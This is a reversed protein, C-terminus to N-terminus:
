RAAAVSRLAAERAIDARSAVSLKKLIHSVHTGVTRRSLVLREAIEPNSLGEEVFGAVKEEMPTLSEWGSEAKRHRSHPGRRIGHARFVSSVRQVDAAAGLFEYVEVSRSMADRARGRSEEDDREVFITAAAELAKAQHLPRTADGYRAAAALLKEPDSDLMGRCYLADGHRHPVESGDALEAAHQTLKRATALDGARVALRVADALVEELQGLEETDGGTLVALAGPLDGDRERDLSRALALPSSFRHGLREAHPVASALLHHSAEIDGRHFSIVAAVGLDSCAAFPEKLDPHLAKVESLAADWQGSELLLTGLTCHAQALRIVTGVQDALKRAQRATTLAEEYRDLNGLAAAKNVQLLLRLDTLAPDAQTVTLARDYLPLADSNRGQTLAVTSLVLLAWGKTWNDGAEEAAALGDTATRIAQEFEGLNFHGRAAPILLRARQQASIGPSELAQKLTALSEASSGGIGHCQALTFHLDVRLGPETVFELARNAVDEARSTDGIRFLAEARRAMLWGYRASDVPCSDAAHALLEVAVGPAQSVLQDASKALWDLIWEDMSPTDLAAATEDAGDSAHLLQRAVRDAPVGAEALSQAADRHWAARLPVPTESYLAEHILPHRFGLRNGCETLVGAACAEDVVPILETVKRDLVTALDGVTFGVGLLAAARLMDRAEGSVFGLRDAIAASLSGPAADGSLEVIGAATRVLGDGRSLAGVLETLYLPNGAAGDALRMLDDDPKGGALKAVLDTVAAETLADLQIRAEGDVVRRLKVIDDRKPVPRLTAILLLPMQEALRALRGWLGVSAPDAWQLDDIVLVTPNAACQETVLALMQEAMAAPIDAGRDGAIEGRLLGMITARRASASPERVRLADLFPHLPLGQGLEDGTGWFAECGLDRAQGMVSRALASKGIGPEGEILVASGRGKAAARLLGHLLNLEEDRGVLAGAPPVPTM